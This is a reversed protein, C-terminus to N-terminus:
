AEEEPRQLIQKFHGLIELLLPYADGSEKAARVIDELATEAPGASRRYAALSRERLDEEDEFKEEAYIDLQTM